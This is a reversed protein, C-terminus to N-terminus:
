KILQIGATVQFPDNITYQYGFKAQWHSLLTKFIEIKAESYNPESRRAWGHHSQIMCSLGPMIRGYLRLIMTNRQDSLPSKLLESIPRAVDLIFNEHDTKRWDFRSRHRFEAGFALNESITIGARLNTYDWVKEEQNWAVGGIVAYSPRNWGISFYAKPFTRKYTNDGFYAYTYLDAVLPPLFPSASKSFFSNKIGVKLLNLKNYGDNINFVFHDNLGSTPKTIGQYTLYPEVMHQVKGFTRFLHTSATGGYTFLAQGTSDHQQNNTYFIGTFGAAPTITLHSLRFPRYVQNRTEFRGARLSPLFRQLNSAYIYNLYGANFFNDFILGTRGLTFPRINSTVYPLEQNISQFNNIRPQFSLSTLFQKEHHSALLRTRKQTNVEFDSSKFDGPMKIDSLKDYTMHVFTKENQTKTTYLGQFRYRKNTTEDPWSKDYAGYSRTRFITNRDHSHYDTEIATGPGKTFRYDLRWYANFHEWSFVRYRMTVRPGLSKDWKVKYRVSSDNKFRLNSKFNPIWFVPIKGFRFRINKASLLHEKTIKVARAHIDWTNDQTECTTVYADYITYSGDETLNIRAGGLFWIDVYTKGDWLTGTKTIFDYELKSGVFAREGYEMLLDGEAEVKQVAVGNEIRNTYSIKQAQIRIGPATVIGGEDTTIVGQSFVPNKLNVEFQQAPAPPNEEASLSSM